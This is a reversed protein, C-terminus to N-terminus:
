YRLRNVVRPALLVALLRLKLAGWPLAGFSRAAGQRDGESVQSLAKLYTHTSQISQWGDCSRIADVESMESIWLALESVHRGRQLHSENKDHHRNFAVPEQVCGLRWHMSLRVVLDLDGMMHYRQDCPYSLAEFASRRVMLTLLGVFYFILLDNLVWGTPIPRTYRVWQKRTREKVVWYNGCVLGVELDSFLPVQLTLKSPAWWDDVDLFAFLDGSAREIAYNRAEYLGTHTPALFYKVRQDSYRAVLEASRDTSCNDWFILEWSPYDQAIVSDIAMQLYAEGNYCNM